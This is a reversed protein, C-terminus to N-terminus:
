EKGAFRVAALLTNEMLMAITMPGVGRPVPTIYSAVKCAPEFDVDGVLRYGKKATPDEVRNVGVDIVAAGPKIMDASIMKPKGVAAILIDAQRTISALDRTGTHCITVTANCAKRALLIALPKGVINSRGVVVAHAGDTRIEAERLLVLVGHPTCPLFGPREIVMNGVSVPHFGDVDKAPDIAMIIRAENIHAPLPLQVLIGHVAPDANLNQILTLLEQETTSVPLKYSKDIMGVEALAKEKGTVYSVSAPDEGVLVVALCPNIGQAKLSRVSDAVRARVSAAVSFGDIVHASM